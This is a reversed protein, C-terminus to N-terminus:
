AAGAWSAVAPACDARWCCVVPLEYPHIATLRESLAAGRGAGTKCLLPVEDAGAVAGQWRYISTAPALINACAALCASVVEM